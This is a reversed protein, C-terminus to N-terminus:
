RRLTPAPKTPWPANFSEEGFSMGFTRRYEFLASDSVDKYSPIVPGSPATSPTKQNM